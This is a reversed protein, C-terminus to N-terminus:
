VSSIFSHFTEEDLKYHRGVLQPEATEAVIDKLEYWCTDDRVPWTLRNYRTKRMCKVMAEQQEIDVEVVPGVYSKDDYKVIVYSHLYHAVNISQTSVGQQDSQTEAATKIV